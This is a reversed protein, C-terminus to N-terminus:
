RMPLTNTSYREISLRPRMLVLISLARRSSDAQSNNKRSRWFKGSDRQRLQMRCTKFNGQHQGLGVSGGTTAHLQLGGWDFRKCDFVTHGHCLGVAQLEIAGGGSLRLGRALGDLGRLGIHHHDSSVAQEQRLPHQLTEGFTAHVDM